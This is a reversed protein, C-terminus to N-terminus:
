GGECHDGKMRAILSTRQAALGEGAVANKENKGREILDDVQRQWNDCRIQRRNEEPTPAKESKAVVPAPAAVPAVPKNIPVSGDCPRDQFQSGCKYMKKQAQAELPAMAWALPLAVLAVAILRNM